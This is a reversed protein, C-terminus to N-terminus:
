LTAYAEILAPGAGENTGDDIQAQCFAAPNGNFGGLDVQLAGPTLGTAIAEYVVAGGTIIPIAVPAYPSDIHLVRRSPSIVGGSGHLMFALQAFTTVTTTTDMVLFLTARFKVKGNAPVTISMTLNTADLAVFSSSNLGITVGPNPTYTVQGLLSGPAVSGGLHDHDARAYASASGDTSAVTPFIRTTQGSSWPLSSHRHDIPAWVPQVGVVVSNGPTTNSISAANTGAQGVLRWGTPATGTGPTSEGSYYLLYPPSANVCYFTGVVPSSPLNGLPGPAAVFVAAGSYNANAGTDLANALNLMDGPVNAPDTSLPVPIALRSTTTPM